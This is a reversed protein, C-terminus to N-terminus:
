EPHRRRTINCIANGRSYKIVHMVGVGHLNCVRFVMKNKEGAINNNQILAYSLIKQKEINIKKASFLQDHLSFLSLKNKILGWANQYVSCSYMAHRIFTTAVKTFFCVCVFTCDHSLTQSRKGPIEIQM